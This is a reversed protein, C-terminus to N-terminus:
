NPKSPLNDNEFFDSLNNAATIALIKRRKIDECTDLVTGLLKCKKWDTTTKNITYKETKENNVNLGKSHLAVPKENEYREM